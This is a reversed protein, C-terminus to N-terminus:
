GRKRRTRKPAPKPEPAIGAKWRTGPEHSAKECASVYLPWLLKPKTPKKAACLWCQKQAGSNIQGCEERVGDVLRRSPCLWTKETPPHLLLKRDINTLRAM